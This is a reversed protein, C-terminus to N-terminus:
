LRFRDHLSEVFVRVYGQELWVIDPKFRDSESALTKKWLYIFQPSLQRRWEVRELAETCGWTLLLM